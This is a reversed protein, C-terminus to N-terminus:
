RGTVVSTVIKDAFTQRKADWLPFLFGVLCPIADLIHAFDRAIAMGIGIPQGSAEGVLNLGLAKKGWSQGTKGQLYWRNYITVLFGLLSILWYIAGFGSMTGAAADVKPGDILNAVISFPAVIVADIVYAGVRQIWSAYNV